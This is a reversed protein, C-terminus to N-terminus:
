NCAGTIEEIVTKTDREMTWDEYTYEILEDHAKATQSGSCIPSFKFSCGPSGFNLCSFCFGAYTCSVNTEYSPSVEIIKTDVVKKCGTLLLAVLVTYFVINFKM